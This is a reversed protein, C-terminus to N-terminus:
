INVDKENTFRVIVCMFTVVFEIIGKFIDEAAAMNFLCCMGPPFFIQRKLFTESYLKSM